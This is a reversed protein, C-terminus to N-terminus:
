ARNSLLSRRKPRPLKVMAPQRVSCGRLIVSPPAPRNNRHNRNAPTLLFEEEWLHNYTGDQYVYQGTRIRIVDYDPLAIPILCKGDFVVSRGDSDFSFDWNDFGYRRRQGPLDRM